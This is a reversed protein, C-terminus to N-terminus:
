HRRLMGMPVVGPGYPAAIHDAGHCKLTCTGSFPGQNGQTFQLKGNSAPSVYNVNFNILRPNGMVGHSDHCTTCSTQQDVIHFRHGAPQGLSNVAHFSQDSLISVRSHCKYCLAYNATSEPNYDTLVLQRELLPPYISGHPGNAGTGGAAPSSDSNHCDTCTMLSSPNWPAILSPVNSNKGVFEVPHFSMNNRDFQLRKNTEQWVRNVNAPGRAVSDAHCRFCLEYERRVPNVVVGDANMGAVGKLSGAAQTRSGPTHTAAHPNHCDLCTVHRAPPNIPDEHSNHTAANLTIPHISIKQFDSAINKAAVNGSHCVFCNKEPMAFKMLQERGGAFHTAHCNDCGAAALTRPKTTRLSVTQLSNLGARASASSTLMKTSLAHVSGTWNEITHCVTCMASGTNDMVLFNGYQNNHPDHCSTCQMENNQDLRVPGTGTPPANLAGDTGALAAVLAQDYVFSIPHDGSLDTGLYGPSTSPMVTAGGQMRIPNSRSSVMGLAVTGDHCSLCLRSSGNPQGVVAKLTPSQYVIYNTVSSMAHNWLPQEGNARHVTHCFICVGSETSAKLTGTGSASLDHPTGLISDARAPCVALWGGLALLASLQRFNMKM